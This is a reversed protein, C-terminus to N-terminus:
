SSPNKVQYVTCEPLDLCVACCLIGSLRQELDDEEKKTESGKRLKKKAPEDCESREKDSKSPNESTDQASSVAPEAMKTSTKSSVAGFKTGVTHRKLFSTMFPWDFSFPSFPVTISVSM